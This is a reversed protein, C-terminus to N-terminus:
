ILGDFICKNAQHILGLALFSCVELHSGLMPVLYMHLRVLLCCIAVCCTVVRNCLVLLLSFNFVEGDTGFPRTM